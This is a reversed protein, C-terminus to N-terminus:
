RLESCEPCLSRYGGHECYQSRDPVPRQNADQRDLRDLYEVAERETRSLDHDKTM